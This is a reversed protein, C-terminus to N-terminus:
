SLLGCYLSARSSQVFTKTSSNSTDRSSPVLCARATSLIGLCAEVFSPRMTNINLGKMIGTIKIETKAARLM